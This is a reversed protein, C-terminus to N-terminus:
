PDPARTVLGPAFDDLHHASTMGIIAPTTFTIERGTVYKAEQPGSPRRLWPSMALRCTLLCRVELM